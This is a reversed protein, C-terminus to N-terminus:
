IILYILNDGGTNNYSCCKTKFLISTYSLFAQISFVVIYILSINHIGM